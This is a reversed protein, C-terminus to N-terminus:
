KMQLINSWMVNKTERLGSAKDGLNDYDKAPILKFGVRFKMNRLQDIRKKSTLQLVRADSEGPAIKILVPANTDCLGPFIIISPFIILDKYDTTYAEEWSCAMNVYTITDPTTNSLVTKVSLIDLERFKEWKDITAIFSLKGSAVKTQDCSFILMTVLALLISRM